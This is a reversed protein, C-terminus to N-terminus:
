ERAVAEDSLYIMKKWNKTEGFVILMEAHSFFVWNPNKDKGRDLSWCNFRPFATRFSPLHLTKFYCYNVLPRQLYM